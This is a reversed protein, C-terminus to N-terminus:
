WAFFKFDLSPTWSAPGVLRTWNPRGTQGAPRATETWDLGPRIEAHALYGGLRIEADVFYDGLRIEAHVIRLFIRLFIQLRFNSKPILKEVIQNPKRLRDDM